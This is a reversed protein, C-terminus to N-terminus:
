LVISHQINLNSVMVLVKVLVMVIVLSDTPNSQDPSKVVICPLFIRVLEYKSKEM